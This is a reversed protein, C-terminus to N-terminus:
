TNSILYEIACGECVLSLHETVFYELDATLPRSFELIIPFEVSEGGKRYEEVALYCSAGEGLYLDACPYPVKLSAAFARALDVTDFAYYSRRKSLTTVRDSDAVLRASEKPLLGLKTVFAECGGSKLPYFQILLKDGDTRFGVEEEALVLIRWFSRRCASSSYDGELGFRHMEEESIVIKLKSEGVLLFEM